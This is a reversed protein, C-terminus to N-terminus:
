SATDVFLKTIEVNVNEITMIPQPPADPSDGTTYAVGDVWCPGEFVLVRWLPMKKKTPGTRRTKAM